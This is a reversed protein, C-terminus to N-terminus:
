GTNLTRGESKYKKIKGLVKKDANSAKLNKARARRPATTNGGKGAGKAWGLRFNKEWRKQEIQILLRGKTVFVGTGNREMLM